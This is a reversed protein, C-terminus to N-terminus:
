GSRRKIAGHPVNWSKGKRVSLDYRTQALSQRVKAIQVQLDAPVAINHNQSKPEREPKNPHPM